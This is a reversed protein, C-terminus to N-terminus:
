PAANGTLVQVQGDASQHQRIRANTTPAAAPPSAAAPAQVPSSLVQESASRNQQAEIARLRNNGSLGYVPKTSTSELPLPTTSVVTKAPGFPAANASGANLPKSPTPNVAADAAPIAAAHSAGQGKLLTGQPWQAINAASIASPEQYAGLVPAGNAGVSPSAPAVPLVGNVVTGSPVRVPPPTLVPAAQVAPVHTAVPPTVATSAVSAPQASLAAGVGATLQEYFGLVTRV